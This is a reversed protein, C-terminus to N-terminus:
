TLTPPIPHTPQSPAQHTTHEPRDRKRHCMCLRLASPTEGSSAAQLGAGFSSAKLYLRAARVPLRSELHYGFSCLGQCGEGGTAYPLRTPPSVRRGLALTGGAIHTQTTRAQWAATGSSPQNAGPSPNLAPPDRSVGPATHRTCGLLRLMSLNYLDRMSSGAVHGRQQRRGGPHTRPPTSRAPKGM